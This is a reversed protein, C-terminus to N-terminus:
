VDIFKPRLTHHSNPSCQRTFQDECAMRIREATAPSDMRFRGKLGSEARASSTADKIAFFVSSALFLPPEGIGKSSYVAKPNSAGKLLSVNFEVPIDGYGPIKYTNPGNTILRGESSYRLQEITFLGYGQAFAGEIQGIDIAPNLSRGVDMVIDTRLVVHDGTLCDIEVVSCAAGYTYYRQTTQEGEVPVCSDDWTDPVKYYGTASLSIRDMYAAKVWDEWSGDPNGAIYPELRHRITKCANLVAMGNLDSGTSAATATTNPVTSTTTENIHFKHVPVQLARSAVQIMKTHLGQGMEVGGHTILVSGDEQYVHVLAAGQELYRGSCFSIPFKTPILSVGRKKWRNVRNFKAIDEKKHCFGSQKIVENWCRDATCNILRNGNPTLDNEKYMNIERVRHSPINLSVSVDEIINEMVLMSQPAGYGRFATNSPLNTKCLIGTLVINPIHYCNDFSCLSESIVDPSLDSTNGANLFVTAELGKFRGVSDIGVKYKGLFPHRGGSILMDEDRDLMGRVPRNLKFAAIAVPILTVYRIVKGGFGGGIRKTRISVRNMSLGLARAVNAQATSPSQTSCFIEIEGDEGRPVARAGNTELYFHEQGGGKIEGELIHDAQEFGREIDGSKILAKTEHPYYSEKAIAEVITFVTPLDEYEIKVAKAASQAHTKTDAVIAGIVQGYCTVEESAFIEEGYRLVMRINSGPVDEHGFFAEVGPLALAESTDISLIKAHARTSTVLALHLEGDVLSMDDCYQAEGTAHQLSASHQLPRGVADHKPQDPPVEEFVQTGRSISRPLSPLALTHRSSVTAGEMGPGRCLELQVRHFFKFFFSCALARKYAMQGGIDEPPSPFDEVLWQVVDSTLRDEWKRGVSRRATRLALSSTESMGGFAIQMEKIVNTDDEFLVRMGANMIAAANERRQAQKYGFVFENKKSFPIFISLVIEDPKINWNGCRTYFTNDLFANRQGGEQSILTITSGTAMLLPVLDSHHHKWLINGALSAVNRIQHGAIGNIIGRMAVLTKYKYETTDKIAETLIEGFRALTVAGGIHIGTDGVAVEHLEPVHTAAIMVQAHAKRYKTDLGVATNGIVIRANPYKSKLELLDKLFVPRLWTVRESKFTLFKTGFGNSIKLEPPFIPEQTTDVPVFDCPEAVDLVHEENSTQNKCCKSGMGCPEDKSFTKFGELIPRYGTCRCLNGQFINEVEEETPKPKNRLLTYMSMVMGPTCFGCQTGHSKAIIEQVPHLRTKTSGIGEVTTVALGHLSCIPVLCANSAYHCTLL